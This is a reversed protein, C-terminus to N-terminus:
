MKQFLFEGNLNIKSIRQEYNKFNQNVLQNYEKKAEEDDESVGEFGSDLGLIKGTKEYYADKDRVDGIIEIEAM